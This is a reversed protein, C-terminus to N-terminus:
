RDHASRLYALAKELPEVGDGLYALGANCGQCLLGRVTGTEHDHDVVLEYDPDRGCIACLGKQRNVMADYEAVTLGYRMLRIRKRHRKKYGRQYAKTHEKNDAYYQRMYERRPSEVAM